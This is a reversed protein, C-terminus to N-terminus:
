RDPRQKSEVAAIFPREKSRIYKYRDLLNSDPHSNNLLGNAPNPTINFSNGRQTQTSGKKSVKSLFHRARVIDRIESIMFKVNKHVKHLM